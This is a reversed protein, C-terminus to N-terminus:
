AHASVVLTQWRQHTTSWYRMGARESIAGIHRLLGEAGSAYRFRAATAVLTAFGAATWGTCEPPRWDHGFDSGSWFRVNPPSDVGAYPPIPDNGCPPRPGPQTYGHAQSLLMAAFVFRICRGSSTRVLTKHRRQQIMM